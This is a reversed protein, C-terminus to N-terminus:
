GDPEEDLKCLARRLTSSSYVFMSDPVESHRMVLWQTMKAAEEVRELTTTLRMASNELIETAHKIAENHVAKRSQSFVYVLAGTFILAAFLVIWLSLRVSLYKKIYDIVKKM